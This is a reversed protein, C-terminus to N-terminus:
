LLQAVWTSAPAVPPAPYISFRLIHAPNIFSVGGQRRFSFVPAAIRRQLFLGIDLPTREVAASDVPPQILMEVFQPTSHTLVFETFVTFPGGAPPLTTPPFKQHFEEASIARIDVVESPFPWSPLSEGVLDVRVVSATPFANLAGNALVIIHSQTFLQAPNLHSLFQQAVTPDPQELSVINGDKLHLYIEM